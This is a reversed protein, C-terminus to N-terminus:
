GFLLLGAWFGAAALVIGDIATLLGPGRTTHAVDGSRLMSGIVRGAFWGAVAVAGAVLMIAPTLTDASTSAILAGVLVGIAAALNPDVGALDPLFRRVVWAAVAGLLMIVLFATVTAASEIRILVLAGAGLSATLAMLCAAGTAELSRYRAEFLPWALVLVIGLALAGALGTAGWRYTANGAAAAAVLTPIVPVVLDRERMTDGLDWLWALAGGVAAFALAQLNIINAILFTALLIMGLLGPTADHPSVYARAGGSVPPILAIEDKGAVATTRDAAEGNVWVNAVTLGAAFEDGFRAVAADLVDGVTEGPLDVRGAGAAERLNAFLRVTAMSHLTADTPGAGVGVPRHSVQTMSTVAKTKLPTVDFSTRAGTAAAPSAAGTETRMTPTLRLAKWPKSGSQTNSASAEMASTAGVSRRRTGPPSPEIRIISSWATSSQSARWASTLVYTM